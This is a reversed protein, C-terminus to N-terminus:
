VPKGHTHNNFKAELGALKASLAALDPDPDSPEPDVPPPPTVPAAGFYEYFSADDGLWLNVDINKKKGDRMPLNAVGFQWALTNGLSPRKWTAPIAARLNEWTLDKAGSWCYEAVWTDTQGLWDMPNNNADTMYPLYWKATYLLAKKDPKAAKMRQLTTRTVQNCHGPAIKKSTATQPYAMWWREADLVQLGFGKNKVTELWLNIQKDKSIPIDLFATLSMQADGVWQPNNFMYLGFPLGADYCNQANAAMQEDQWKALNDGLECAKMVVAEVGMTRFFLFDEKSFPGQWHSIDIFLKCDNWYTTNATARSALNRLLSPANMRMRYEMLLDNM